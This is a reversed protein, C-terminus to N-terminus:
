ATSWANIGQVRLIYAACRHQAAPTWPDGMGACGRNFWDADIQYAGICGHGSCGGPPPNYARYFGSTGSERLIIYEPVAWEGYPTIADLYRYERNIAARKEWAGRALRYKARDTRKMCARMSGLRALQRDTPKHGHFDGGRGGVDARLVRKALQNHARVTQCSVQELPGQAAATAGSSFIAALTAALMFM